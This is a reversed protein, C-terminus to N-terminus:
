GIEVAAGSEVAAQPFQPYREKQECAPEPGAHIFQLPCFGGKVPASEPMRDDEGATHLFKGIQLGIAERDHDADSPAKGGQGSGRPRCAVHFRRIWM